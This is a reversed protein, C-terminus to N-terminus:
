ANELRGSSGKASARISARLTWLFPATGTLAFYMWAAAFEVNPATRTGSLTVVFGALVMPWAVWAVVAKAVQALAAPRATGEDLAGRAVTRAAHGALAFAAIGALGAILTQASIAGTWTASALWVVALAVLLRAPWVFPRMLANM